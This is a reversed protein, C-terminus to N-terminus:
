YNKFFESAKAKKAWASLNYKLVNRIEDDTINQKKGKLERIERELDKMDTQYQLDAEKLRKIQEPNLFELQHTEYNYFGSTPYPHYAISSEPYLKAFMEAYEPSVVKEFNEKALNKKIDLELTNPINKPKAEWAHTLITRESRQVIPEFEEITKASERYELGLKTLGPSSSEGYMKTRLGVNWFKFSYRDIDSLQNPRTHKALDFFKKIGGFAGLKKTSPISVLENPHLGNELGKLAVYDNLHKVWHDFEDFHEYQNPLEFVQHVHFSRQNNVTQSLDKMNKFLQKVRVEVGASKVEWGFKSHESDSVEESIPGLYDPKLATPAVQNGPLFTKQYSEDLKARLKEFQAQDNLKFWEEDSWSAPKYCLAIQEATGEKEFGYTILFSKGRQQTIALDAFQSHEAMLKAIMEEGQPLKKLLPYAVAVHSPSKIWSSLQQYRNEPHIFWARYLELVEKEATNEKNKLRAVGSYIQHSDELSSVLEESVSKFEKEQQPTLEDVLVKLNRDGEPTIMPKRNVGFKKLPYDSFDTFLRGGLHDIEHQFIRAEEGVLVRHTQKGFRDNYEVVIESPRRVSTSKGPLSLCGEMSNSLKSSSSIIKPNIVVLPDRSAKIVFIPLSEGVQPAAIGVGGHNKMTIVLQDIFDQLHPDSIASSPIKECTTRLVPHTSESLPLPAHQQAPNFIQFLVKTTCSTDEAGHAPQYVVLTSFVLLFRLFQM